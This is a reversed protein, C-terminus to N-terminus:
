GIGHLQLEVKDFKRIQQSPNIEQSFLLCLIFLDVDIPNM